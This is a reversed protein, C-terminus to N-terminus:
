KSINVLLNVLSLVNLTLFDEGFYIDLCAINKIKKFIDFVDNLFQFEKPYWLFLNFTESSIKMMINEKYPMILFKLLYYKILILNFAPPDIDINPNPLYRTWEDSPLVYCICKCSEDLSQINQINANTIFTDYIKLAHHDLRTKICAEAMLYKLYQKNIYNIEPICIIDLAQIILQSNIHFQEIVKRYLLITCKKINFKTENCSKNFIIMDLIVHALDTINNSHKWKTYRCYITIADVTVRYKFTYSTVSSTYIEFLNDGGYKEYLKMHKLIIIQDLYKKTEFDSSESLESQESQESPESIENTM